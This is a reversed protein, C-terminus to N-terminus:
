TKPRHFVSERSKRKLLRRQLFPWQWGGDGAVRIDRRRFGFWGFLALLVLAGLLAYLKVFNFGLMADSQFYTVISATSWADLGPIARALNTIIHSALVYIGSIMAAAVRSPVVMSLAVALAACCLTFVYASVFPLARQGLSFDLKVARLVGVWLGLWACIILIGSGVSLSLFRGWYVAARSAPHALIFDLLGREEDAALMGSGATVGYAGLAIPLFAFYRLELFGAPTLFRAADQGGIFATIAPPLTAIIALLQESNRAILDYFPTTVAGLLFLPIGWGVLLWCSRLIAFRFTILLENM